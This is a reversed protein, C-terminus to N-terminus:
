IPRSLLGLQNTQALVLNLQDIQHYVRASTESLLRVAQANQQSAVNVGQMITLIQQNTSHQQLTAARIEEGYRKIAETATLIWEAQQASSIVVQTLKEIVAGATRSRSVALRTEKKSEEAVSVAAEIASGIETITERVEKAARRSREALIKVERAIVGFREGQVQGADALGGEEGAGAAEISANLALLHTEDAIEEILDIINSAKDRQQTLEWLREGLFELRKDVQEVSSVAEEVAQNGQTATNQALQSAQKVQNATTVTQIASEASASASAAIQNATVSLETLSSTVQTVSAAQEQSSSAQQQSTSNLEAAVSSLDNSLEIGLQNTTNLTTVLHQLHENQQESLLAAKHLRDTFIYIGVIVISLIILWMVIDILPYNELLPDPTYLKLLLQISYLCGLSGAAILGVVIIGRRGLEIIGALIPLIVFGVLLSNPQTGIALRAIFISNFAGALLLYSALNARKLSAGPRVLIYVLIYALLGCCSSISLMLGIPNHALIVLGFGLLIMSSASAGLVLALTRLLSLRRNLLRLSRETKKELFFAPQNPSYKDNSRSLVSM